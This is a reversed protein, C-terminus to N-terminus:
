QKEQLRHNIFFLVPISGLLKESTGPGYFDASNFLNIGNKVCFEFVRLSEEEDAQGYAGAMGMCGKCTLFTSFKNSGLGFPSVSLGTNGFKRKPVQEM